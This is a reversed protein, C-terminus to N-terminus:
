PKRVVWKVGAAGRGEGRSRSGRPGGGQGQLGHGAVAEEDDVAQDRVDLGRGGDLVGHVCPALTKPTQQKPHARTM